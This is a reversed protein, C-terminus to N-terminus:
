IWGGNSTALIMWKRILASYVLFAVHKVGSAPLTTTDGTRLWLQNEERSSGSLQALTLVALGSSRVLRIQGDSGGAIGTLTAAANLPVDLLVSNGLPVDNLLGGALEIRDALLTATTATPKGTTTLEDLRQNIALVLKDLDPANYDTPAKWAIRAM